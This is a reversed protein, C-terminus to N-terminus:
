NSITEEVTKLIEVMALTDLKCYELMDKKLQTKDEDPHDPNILDPWALMAQEGSAIKLGDYSLQPILVPLVKKLSASGLFDPHVYHGKSFVDMLDFLRDNLNELFDKKESYLAAM